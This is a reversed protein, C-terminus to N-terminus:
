RGHGDDDCGIEPLVDDPLRQEAPDRELELLPVPERQGAAVAAALGRQEPHERALRGHVEALEHEGLARAHRQMILPRGSLQVDAQALVDELAAAVQEGEFALELLELGLHRRALAVM